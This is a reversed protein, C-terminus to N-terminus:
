LLPWIQRLPAGARGQLWSDPGLGAAAAGWSYIISLSMLRVQLLPAGAHGKLWSDPGLGAAATGILVPPCNFAAAAAM